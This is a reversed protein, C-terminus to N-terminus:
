RRLGCGFGLSGEGSSFSAEDGGIDGELFLLGLLGPLEEVDRVALPLRERPKPVVVVISAVPGVDM